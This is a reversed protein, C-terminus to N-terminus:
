RGGRMYLGIVFIVFGYVILVGVRALWLELRPDRDLQNGYMRKSLRGIPVRYWQSRFSRMWKLLPEPKFWVLYSYWVLALGFVLFLVVSTADM